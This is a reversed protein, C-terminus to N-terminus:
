GSIELKTREIRHNWNTLAVLAKVVDGHCERLTREALPKSIEMERIQLPFFDVNFHRSILPSANNIVVYM